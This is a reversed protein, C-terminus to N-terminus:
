ARRGLTGGNLQPLMLFGTPMLYLRALGHYDVVPALFFLPKSHPARKTVVPTL